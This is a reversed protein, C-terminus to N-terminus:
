PYFLFSLIALTQEVGVRLKRSRNRRAVAVARAFSSREAICLL